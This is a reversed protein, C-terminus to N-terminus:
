SPPPRAEEVLAARLLVLAANDLAPLLPPSFFRGGSFPDPTMSDHTDKRVFIPLIDITLLHLIIILVM